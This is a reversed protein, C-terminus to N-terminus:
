LKDNDGYNKWIDSMTHIGGEIDLRLGGCLQKTSCEEATEERQLAEKISVPRVGPCKDLGILHGLLCITGGIGKTKQQGRWIVTALGPPLSFGSRRGQSKSMSLTSAKNYNTLASEPPVTPEPHKSALVENVPLGTKSCTDELKLLGGKERGTLWRVAQRLKGQFLM